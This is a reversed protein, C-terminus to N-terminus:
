ANAFVLTDGVFEVCFYLIGGSTFTKGIERNGNEPSDSGHVVNRGLHECLTM